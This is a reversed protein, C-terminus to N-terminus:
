KSYDTVSEDADGLPMPADRAAAMPGVPYGPQSPGTSPAYGDLSFGYSDMSSLSANDNFNRPERASAGYGMGSKYYATLSNDVDDSVVSDGPYASPEGYASPQENNTKGIEIPYSDDTDNQPLDYSNGNEISSEAPAQHYAGKTTRKQTAGAMTMTNPKTEPKPKIFKPKKPKVPAPPRSSTDREKRDSKWAWVVAFVLLAFALVAVVIAVIIITELNKNTKNGQDDNNKDDDQTADDDAFPSPVIYARVDVVTIPENSLKSDIAAQLDARLSRDDLFTARQILEVIEPEMPPTGTGTREWLTVGEFSIQVLSLEQGDITGTSSTDDVLELAISDFSTYNNEILQQAQENTTRTIFSEIMWDTIADTITYLTEEIIESDPFDSDNRIAMQVQFPILRILDTRIVDKLSREGFGRLRHESGYTFPLVLLLLSALFSCGFAKM